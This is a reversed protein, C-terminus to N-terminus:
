GGVVEAKSSWFNTSVVDAWFNNRLLFFYTEMGLQVITMDFLKWVMWEVVWSVAVSLLINDSAFYGIPLWYLEDIWTLNFMDYNKIYKREILLRKWSYLKMEFPKGKAFFDPLRPVINVEKNESRNKSVQHPYFRDNKWVDNRDKLSSFCILFKIMESMFVRKTRITNILSLNVSRQKEGRIYNIWFQIIKYLCASCVLIKRFRPVVWDLRLGFLEPLCKKSLM